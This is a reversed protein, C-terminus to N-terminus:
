AEDEALIRAADEESLAGIEGLLAGTDEGGSALRSVIALALGEVTPREFPVRAPLDVGLDDRVRGLLRVM